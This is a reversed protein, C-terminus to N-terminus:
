LSRGPRNQDVADLDPGASLGTTRAPAQRRDGTLTAFDHHGTVLAATRESLLLHTGTSAASTVPGPVAGVGRGLAHAERAVHLAGSRAGAEM